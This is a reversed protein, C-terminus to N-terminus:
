LLRIRGTDRDLQPVVDLLDIQACAVLDADYGIALLNRGGPTNRLSKPLNNTWRVARLAPRRSSNRGSAAHRKRRTTPDAVARGGRRYAPRRDRRGGPHGRAHRARGHGRLAPGGACRGARIGGRGVPERDGRHGGAGALRAHNLARTGNTTTFLMHRGAVAEPTYETPSNGSDFGEIRKGEREGGLVVNDRGAAEGAALAEGVDVFTAVDVAGAALATAITTSARLLDIVVVTGGALDSEAVFGPLYHVRLLHRSM